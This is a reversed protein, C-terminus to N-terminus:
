PMLPRISEALAIAADTDVPNNSTGLWVVFWRETQPGTRGDAPPLGLVGSWIQGVPKAPDTFKIEYYSASGTLGGGSLPASVKNVRSGPYPMYFEGLDSGLRMAAKANDTEASAYFHQDLEGLSIRTDNFVAPGGGSTQPEGTKKSLLSSGYKLKSADSQVWGAPLVFSFGGVVDDVRNPGKPRPISTRTAAITGTTSIKSGAAPSQSGARAFSVIVVAAVIAAIVITAGAVFRVHRNSGSFIDSSRHFRVVAGHDDPLEILAHQAPVFAANLTAAAETPASASFDDALRSSTAASTPMSTRQMPSSLAVRAARALDKANTFREDPDKAMGTAIVDDMAAPISSRLASPRPPPDFMHGAAVQEIAEGPFPPQGTLVQHLVCTLAYVDARADVTGTRFREPAMYPWTGLTMGTSTLGTEGVVRAIGFDILYAFDNETVLINSPKVDRHILGIRHAADLASAIQEIIVVARGPDLPGQALLAQLDHGDVLRMAVFLRGDIEGFDHIPVVHPENLSAAAKAERLFRQQFGEDGALHAPLVKVAVTRETVTDFARWVEGMGGRGLVEVLRYRGFPTGEM